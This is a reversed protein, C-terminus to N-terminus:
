VMVFFYLEFLNCCLWDYLAGFELLLVCCLSSTEVDFKWHFMSVVNKWVFFCLFVWRSTWKLTHLMPRPTKFSGRKMRGNLHHITNKGMSLLFLLSMPLPHCQQAFFLSTQFHTECFPYTPFIALLVLIQFFISPSPYLSTSFNLFTNKKKSFFHHLSSSFELPLLLHITVITSSHHLFLSFCFFFLSLLSLCHPGFNTGGEM